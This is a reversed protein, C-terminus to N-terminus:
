EASFTFTATENGGASIAVKKKQIGLIPHWARLSYKGPPIDKIQFAGDGNVIAYYPNRAVFLFGKMWNHMDCEIRVIPSRRIKAKRNVKKRHKPQSINWMSRKSRGIIEYTHINHHTPDSNLITVNGGEAVVQLYPVYACKRQDVVVRQIEEPFAKGKKVKHLYVIVGRLAGDKVDVEQRTVQGKGCADHDKTIIYKIPALPEGKFSVLGTITGGDATAVVKYKALSSNSVFLFLLSFAFSLFFRCMM